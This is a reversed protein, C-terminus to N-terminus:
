GNNYEEWVKLHQERNKKWWVEAAMKAEGETPWRKTSVLNSTIPPTVITYTWGAPKDGKADKFGVRMYIQDTELNQLYWNRHGQFKGALGTEKAEKCWRIM